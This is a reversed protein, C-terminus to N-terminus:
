SILTALPEPFPKLLPIKNLIISSKQFKAMLDKSSKTCKRAYCMLPLLLQNFQIIFDRRVKGRSGALSNLKLWHSFNFIWCEQIKVSGSLGSNYASLTSTIFSSWGNGINRTRFMENRSVSLMCMTMPFNHIKYLNINHYQVFSDTKLFSKARSITVDLSFVLTKAYCM